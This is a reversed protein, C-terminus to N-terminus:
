ESLITQLKSYEAHTLPVHDLKTLGEGPLTDYKIFRGIADWVYLIQIAYCKGEECVPTNITTSYGDLLGAEDFLTDITIQLGDVDHNPKFSIGRPISTSSIVVVSIFCGFILGHM